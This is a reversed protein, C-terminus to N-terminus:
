TSVVKERNTRGQQIVRWGVRSNLFHIVFLMIVLRVDVQLFIIPDM